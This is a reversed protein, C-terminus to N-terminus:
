WVRTVGYDDFAEDRSVLRLNDVRAQAVLLRDFPDDHFLPLDVVAMAHDANVSLLIL